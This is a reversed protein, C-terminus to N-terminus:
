QVALTITAKHSTQDSAVTPTKIRFWLNRNKAVTLPSVLYGSEETVGNGFQTDSCAVASTTMADSAWTGDVNDPRLSSFQGQLTYTDTSPSGALTWTTGVGESAADAGQLTYTEILGVSENAVVIPTASNSSVSTALAGFHYYTADVSLDKTLNIRVKIDLPQPTLANAHSSFVALAAIAGLAMLSLRLKYKM